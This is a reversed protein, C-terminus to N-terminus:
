PTIREIVVVDSDSIKRLEDGEWYVWAGDKSEVVERVSGDRLKLRWGPKPDVKLKVDWIEAAPIVVEAGDPRRVCVDGSALDTM